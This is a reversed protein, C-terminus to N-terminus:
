QSSLVELATSTTWLIITSTTTQQQQQQQKQKQQQEQQLTLMYMYPVQECAEEDHVVADDGVVPLDPKKEHARSEERSEVRSPESSM